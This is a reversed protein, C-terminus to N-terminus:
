GAQGGGGSPTSGGTAGGTPAGGTEGPFGHEGTGHGQGFKGGPKHMGPITGPGPLTHEGDNQGSGPSPMSPQGAGGSGGGFRSIITSLKEKFKRKQIAGQISTM